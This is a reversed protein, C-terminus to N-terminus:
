TRFFTWKKKGPDLKRSSIRGQHHQSTEVYLALDVNATQTAGLSIRKM